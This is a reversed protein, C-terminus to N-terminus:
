PPPTRPTPPCPAGAGDGCARCTAGVRRACLYRREGRCVDAVGAVLEGSAELPGDPKVSVRLSLVRYLQNRKELTLSDLCDSAMGAYTELVVRHDRELQETQEQRRKLAELAREATEGTDKLEALKAGTAGAYRATAIMSRRRRPTTSRWASPVAIVSSAEIM